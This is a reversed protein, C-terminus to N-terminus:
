AQLIRQSQDVAERILSVQLSVPAEFSTGDENHLDGHPEAWEQQIAERRYVVHTRGSAEKEQQGRELPEIFFDTSDTRILGAPTWDELQHSWARSVGGLAVAARSGHPCEISGCVRLGKDLKGLHFNELACTQGSKAPSFEREQPQKQPAKRPPTHSFPPPPPPPPSLHSSGHIKWCSMTKTAFTVCEAVEEDLPRWVM